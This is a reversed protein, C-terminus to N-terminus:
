CTSLLKHSAALRTKKRAKEPNGVLLDMEAPRYFESSVEIIIKGTSTDIGKTNVGEGRWELTFGAIEAAKEVFKRVSHTEGTAIVITTPNLSSFCLGCPKWM